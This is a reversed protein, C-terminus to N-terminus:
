HDPFQEGVLAYSLNKPYDCHLLCYRVWLLNSLICLTLNNQSQGHGLYMFSCSLINSQGLELVLIIRVKVMVLVMVLYMIPCSLINSHGLEKATNM